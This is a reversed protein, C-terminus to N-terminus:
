LLVLEIGYANLVREMVQQCLSNRDHRAFLRRIGLAPAFYKSFIVGELEAHLVAAGSKQELFYTPFKKLSILYGEGSLVAVNKLHATEERVLDLGAACGPGSDAADEAMFILLNDVQSSARECIRRHSSSFSGAEFVFAGSSGDLRMRGLNKAFREIGDQRNELLAVKGAAEAVKYFGMRGFKDAAEPKTYIFLRHLGHEYRDEILRSLVLSGLGCNRYGEDVAICKLISGAASGTAVLKEGCYICVVREVDDELFLGNKLLLARAAEIRPDDKDSIYASFLNDM